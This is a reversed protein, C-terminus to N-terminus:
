FGELESLDAMGEALNAIRQLLALRNERTQTDEAMVLIDDFFRNIAPVM